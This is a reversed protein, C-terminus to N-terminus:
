DLIQPMYERYLKKVNSLVNMCRVDGTATSLVISTMILLGNSMKILEHLLIPHSGNKYLNTVHIGGHIYSSLSKWTAGKFENVMRVAEAPAKGEIQKLMESLMPLRAARRESELSLDSMLKEVQNDSAGYILWLGRVFAEYQVRLLSAASSISGLRMLARHSSGHEYSAECMLASAVERQSMRDIEYDFLVGLAVQIRDSNELLEELTMPM